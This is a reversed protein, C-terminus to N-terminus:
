KAFMLLFRQAWLDKRKFGAGSQSWCVPGLDVYALLRLAVERWWMKQWENSKRGQKWEHDVNLKGSNSCKWPLWDGLFLDERRTQTFLASSTLHAVLHSAGGHTKKERQNPTKQRKCVTFFFFIINKPSKQSTCFWLNKWRSSSCRAWSDLLCRTLRQPRPEVDLLSHNCKLFSRKSAAAESNCM